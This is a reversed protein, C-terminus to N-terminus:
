MKFELDSVLKASIKSVKVLKAKSDSLKEVFGHWRIKIEKKTKWNSYKKKM